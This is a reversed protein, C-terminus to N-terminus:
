FKRKIRIEAKIKEFLIKATEYDKGEM